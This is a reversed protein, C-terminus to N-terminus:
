LPVSHKQLQDIRGQVMEIESQSKAVPIVAKLVGIADSFKRQQSLVTATDIRYSLNAPELQVAKVNLLHAEDLKQNRTATSCPSHM